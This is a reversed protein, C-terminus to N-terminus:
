ITVFVAKSIGEGKLQALHVLINEVTYDVGLVTDGDPFMISITYCIDGTVADVYPPTVFTEGKNKEAGVYWNRKTPEFGTRDTLGPLIDWGSGAIYINFLGNNNKNQIDIQEYIYHELAKRDEILPQANMALLATLKEAENITSELEGSISKLKYMGSNRSQNSTIGFVLTMDLVTMVVVLLAIFVM